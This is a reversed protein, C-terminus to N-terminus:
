SKREHQHNARASHEFRAVICHNGTRRFARAAATPDEFLGVVAGGDGGAGTLKAGLAGHRRLRHVIEDISASSLQLASLLGQNMNMLDGLWVLDGKQMAAKGDSAVKGIDEFVRQYRRPWRRQRERLTSVTAKTEPRRGALVVLLSFSAPCRVPKARGDQFWVIGGMRSTHHDVGSPTGHFEKEMELALGLVSKTSASAPSSAALLSEAVAVSLAGSSGLGMGVPLASNVRVRFAAGGLCAAARAFARRLAERQSASVQASLEFSPRASPVATATVGIPLAAAVAGHGYVVAHEGLLIVKGQGFGSAVEKM